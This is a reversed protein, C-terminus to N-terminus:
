DWVLEGNGADGEFDGGGQIVPSYAAGCVPCTGADSGNGHYHQPTPDPQPAPTPDPAPAPTSGGGNGSPQTAPTSPTGGGNNGANGTSGTPRTPTTAQQVPAAVEVEVKCSQGIENKITISTKGAAVGTVVGNEDVTVIKEDASTYTYDTGIEAKAQDLGTDVAIEATKGVVLAVNEASLKVPAQLVTVTVTKEIGDAAITLETKGAAVATLKGDKVTVIDEDAVAFEVKAADANEPLLVYEFAFNKTTTNLAVDEAEIGELPVNVTVKCVSQINADKISVTINAEGGGVATVLGSQSVTAVTEDSSSWVLTLGEAAKAIADAKADEKDSGFSIELQVSEGKALEADTPLGVSTINIGSCGTLCLLAAVAVALVAFMKMTKTKMANEEEFVRRLRESGDIKASYGLNKM